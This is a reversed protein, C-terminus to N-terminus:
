PATHAELLAWLVRPNRSHLYITPRHWQQCVLFLIALTAIPMRGKHYATYGLRLLGLVIRVHRYRPHPLLHRAQAKRSPKLKHLPGRRRNGAPPTLPISQM